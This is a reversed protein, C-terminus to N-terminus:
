GLTEAEQSKVLKPGDPQNPPIGYSSLEGMTREEEKMNLDAM